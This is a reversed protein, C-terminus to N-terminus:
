RGHALPAEPLGCVRAIRHCAYAIGCGWMLSALSPIDDGRVAGDPSRWEGTDGDVAIIKEPDSRHMVHVTSGAMARNVAALQQRRSHAYADAQAQGHRARILSLDPMRLYDPTWWQFDGRPATMLRRQFGLSALVRPLNEHDLALAAILDRDIPASQRRAYSVQVV